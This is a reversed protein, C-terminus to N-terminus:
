RFPFVYHLKKRLDEMSEDVFRGHHGGTADRFIWVLDQAIEPQNQALYDHIWLASIAAHHLEPSHSRFQVGARTLRERQAEDQGQFAASLKGLDHLAILFPLWSILAEPDAGRWAHLLAQRVRQPGHRLLAEAVCAVDLMHFIAPHFQTVPTGPRPTKGWFQLLLPDISKM